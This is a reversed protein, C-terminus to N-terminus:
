APVPRGGAAGGRGPAHAAGGSASAATHPPPRYPFHLLAAVRVGDGPGASLNLTEVDILRASLAVQRFFRDIEAFRATGTVDVPVDGDTGKELPARARIDFGV